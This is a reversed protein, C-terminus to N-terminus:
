VTRIGESDALLIMLYLVISHIFPFVFGPYSKRILMRIIIQIQTLEIQLQFNLVFLVGIHLYSNQDLPDVMQLKFELFLLPTSDTAPVGSGFCWSDTSPVGSGISWSCDFRLPEFM